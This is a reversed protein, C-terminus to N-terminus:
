LAEFRINCVLQAQKSNSYGEYKGNDAIILQSISNARMLQLANVALTDKELTKPSPSMIDGATLNSVDENKELMRRLDGDTVIGQISEDEGLVVTCGLRKSTIELILARVNADASVAPKENNPYIYQLFARTTSVQEGKKTSLANFM